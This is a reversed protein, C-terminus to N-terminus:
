DRRYDTNKGYRVWKGDAAKVTIFYDGGNLLTIFTMLAPTIMGFIGGMVFLMMIPVTIAKEMGSVMKIVTTVGIAVWATILLVWIFVGIM